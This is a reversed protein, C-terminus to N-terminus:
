PSAWQGKKLSSYRLRRRLWERAGASAQEFQDSVQQLTQEVLRSALSTSQAALAIILQIPQLSLPAPEPPNFEDLYFRPM